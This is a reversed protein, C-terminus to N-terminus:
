EDQHHCKIIYQGRLKLLRVGSYDIIKQGSGTTVIIAAVKPRLSSTDVILDKLKGILEKSDSYVKNNIIRSLYFTQLTAM